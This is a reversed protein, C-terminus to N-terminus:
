GDETYCLLTIAGLLALVPPAWAALAVPVVDTSGLAGCFQNLLFVAFGLAVGATALGALDGLRLLRLSFAAAVLTMASLLLPTALLQQLRLRYAASSYGALDAARITAPLDWVAVAAPAVFKEMASRRGITSPLSLVESRISESGPRAERAQTLRWYGPMLVAEDADIRRTFDVAGDAGVSQIFMSVGKLRLSGHRTDRGNAHIVVQGGPAGQRLWIEGTSTPSDGGTLAARRDEFRGNLAAASPNFVAVALVGVVFAAAAAPFLFRWASVGAARMAILESRRNLAVFAGMAGFLFVFPLLLLIVSPAKLLVLEAIQAFGVDARGSVTRSIDVFDVLMIVSAVVALAAGVGALTRTLVYLQLRM